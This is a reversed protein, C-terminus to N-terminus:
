AAEAAGSPATPRRRRKPKLTKALRDMAATAAVSTTEVYLRTYEPSGHRMVDQTLLLDKELEYFRTGFRHRLTHTTYPLDLGRMLATVANTVDGRRAPRSAYRSAPEPQIWWLPGAASRLHARLFPDVEQPVTLDFARRGKGIGSLLLRGADTETVDDRRIQAIEFARLGMFAALLLWTHVPEKAVQLALQLDREPIPRAKRTPLKPRPLRAAPDLDIHGNDLLWRYFVRIHTSYTAVTCLTGTLSAQWRDLDAESAQTLPCPLHAVLRRLLMDRDQITRPSAGCRRLYDRHLRVLRLDHEEIRM